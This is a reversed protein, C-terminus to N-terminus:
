SLFSICWQRKVVRLCKKVNFPRNTNLFIGQARKARWPPFIFILVLVRNTSLSWYTSLSGSMFLHLPPSFDRPPSTGIPWIRLLMCNKCLFSDFRFNERYFINVMDLNRLRSDNYCIKQRCPPYTTLPCYTKLKLEKIRRLTIMNGHM